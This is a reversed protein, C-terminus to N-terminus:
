PRPQLRDVSPRGHLVVPLDGFSLLVNFGSGDIPLGVDIRYPTINFQPFLLRVGIGVSHKLSVDDLEAFVDGTDYFAVPGFHVTNWVFPPARYEATAVVRSGGFVFFAQSPYGRLGNDGGLSVLSSQSDDSRALTDFRLALRGLSFTPSALRMRVALSRDLVDGDELRAGMEMGIEALGDRGVPRVISAAATLFVFDTSSLLARSGAGVTASLAPGVRVAETRGFTDLNVVNLFTPTFGQYALFPFVQDRAKPLVDRIFAERAAPDVEDGFRPELERFSLSLGAALRHKFREGFQRRVRLQVNLSREDWARELAEVDSTEAADYTLVESGQVQRIPRALGDVLLDLGWPTSFDYIRWGLVASGVIGEPRGTAHEFIVDAQEFLSFDTGLVRRDFYLQGFAFIQPAAQYRISGLKHRGFLNRETIQLLLRDITVGTVQFAQEARLSWLDRTFVLVGRRGAEDVVPIIRVLAFVGIRRLNRASEEMRAKLAAGFRDGERFLLEREVAEEVSLWHLWNLWLPWPEDPTFVDHRVIEVFEVQAGAPPEARSFGTEELTRAVHQEEYSAAGAAGAALLAVLLLANRM